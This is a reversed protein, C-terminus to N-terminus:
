PKPKFLPAGEIVQGIVHPRRDDIVTLLELALAAHSLPPAIIEGILVAPDEREESSVATQAVPAAVNEFEQYAAIVRKVREQDNSM